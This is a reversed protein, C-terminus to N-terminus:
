VSEVEGNYKPLAKIVENVIDSLDTGKVGITGSLSSVSLVQGVKLGSMSAFLAYSDLSPSGNTMRIGLNNAYMVKNGFSDSYRAYLVENGMYTVRQGKEQASQAMPTTTHDVETIDYTESVESPLFGFPLKNYVDKPGVVAIYVDRREGLDGVYFWTVNYGNASYKYILFPEGTDEGLNDIALNGIARLTIGSSAVKGFTEYTNDDITVTYKEGRRIEFLSKEVSRIGSTQYNYTEEYLLENVTNKTPIWELDLYKNPIKHITPESSMKSIGFTLESPMSEDLLYGIASAEALVALEPPVVLLVFPENNSEIGLEAVNGMAICDTGNFNFPHAVCEYDTGNYSITYTEGETVEIIITPSIMFETSPEDETPPQWLLVDDETAEEFHVAKTLPFVEVIGGGSVGLTIPSSISQDLIMGMMGFGINDAHEKSFFILVFPEGTPSDGYEGGSMTYIDGLVYATTGENEDIEEVAKCKYEVGNFKVTYTNGGKIPVYDAYWLVLGSGNYEFVLTDSGTADDIYVATTEKILEAQEGGGEEYYMDKIFKPDLHKIKKSGEKITITVEVLQGSVEPDVSNLYSYTNGEFTSTGVCFPLGNDAGMRDMWWPNGIYTLSVSDSNISVSRCRYEEGNFVVLYDTNPKLDLVVDLATSSFGVDGNLYYTSERLITSYVTEEYFPKGQLENWSVEVDINGLAQEINYFKTDTESFKSDITAKDYADIDTSKLIVQGDEVSEVVLYQNPGVSSEDVLPVEKPLFKTPMKDFRTSIRDVTIEVTTNDYEEKCMITMSSPNVTNDDKTYLFIYPEGTDHSTDGSILSLNGVIYNRNTNNTANSDTLSVIGVSRYKVGDFTVEYIEDDKIDFLLTSSSIVGLNNFSLSGKYTPTVKEYITPIWDLDLFENPLKDVAERKVHEVSISVTTSAYARNSTLISYFQGNLVMWSWYFPEGTDVYSDGSNVGENGIHYVDSVITGDEEKLLTRCGVCDYSVGNYTVRYIEGEEITFPIQNGSFTKFGSTPVSLASESYLPTVTETLKPIWDLDVGGSGQNKELNKIKSLLFKAGSEGICTKSM